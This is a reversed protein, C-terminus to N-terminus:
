HARKCSYRIKFVARAYEKSGYINGVAEVCCFSLRLFIM